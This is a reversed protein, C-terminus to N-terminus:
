ANQPVILINMQVARASSLASSLMAVGHEYFYPHYRRGGRTILTATQLRLSQAEGATLQFMFDDPFRERNRNTARLTTHNLGIGRV